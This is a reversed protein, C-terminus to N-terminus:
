RASVPRRHRRQRRGDHAHLRRARIEAAREELALNFRRLQIVAGPPLAREVRRRLAGQVRFTTAVGLGFGILLWFIRKVM